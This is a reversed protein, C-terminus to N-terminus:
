KFDVTYFSLVRLHLCTWTCTLGRNLLLVHLSSLVLNLEPGQLPFRDLHLVPSQLAFLDLHLEPVTHLFTRTCCLCRYHLYAWSCRLSINDLCTWTCSLGRYQPTSVELLLLPRELTSVDM